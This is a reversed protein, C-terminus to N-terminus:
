DIAALLDALDEFTGGLNTGTGATTELLLRTRVEPLRAYVGRVARSILDIAAERGQGLHAGPHMVLGPIGLQHCRRLEDELAADSKIAVDGTNSALNILYCTHAFVNSLDINAKQLEERFNAAV